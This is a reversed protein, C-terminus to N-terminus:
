QITYDYKHLRLHMQQLWPTILNTNFWKSHNTIIKYQYMDAQIYTHFKELSFCISLCEREINTYRTETDTLTKSTFPIPHSAQIFDPCLRYESADTHPGAKEQQFIGIHGQTSLFLDMFQPTSSCFRNLPELGLQKCPFATKDSIGLIFPWLYNILGLFSQLKTQKDPIPLDQLTQM